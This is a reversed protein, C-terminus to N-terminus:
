LVSSRGRDVRDVRDVARMRQLEGIDRARDAFRANVMARLTPDRLHPMAAHVILLGTALHVIMLDVFLADAEGGTTKALRALGRTLDPDAPPRPMDTTAAPGALEELAAIERQLDSRIRRAVIKVEDSTGNAIVEDALAIGTRDHDILHRALARDDHPASIPKTGAREVESSRAHSVAQGAAPAEGGAVMSSAAFLAPWLTVHTISRRSMALGSLNRPAVRM